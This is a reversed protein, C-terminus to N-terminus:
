SSIFPLKYEQRVKQIYDKYIDDYRNVNPALRDLGVLKISGNFGRYRLLQFVTESKKSIKGVCSYLNIAFIKTRENVIKNLTKNKTLSKFQKYNNQNIRLSHNIEARKSINVYELKPNNKDKSYKWSDDGQVLINKTDKLKDFKEAIAIADSILGNYGRLMKCFDTINDSKSYHLIYMFSHMIYAGEKIGQLRLYNEVNEFLDELSVYKENWFFTERFEPNVFSYESYDKIGVRLHSNIANQINMEIDYYDIIRKSFDKKIM